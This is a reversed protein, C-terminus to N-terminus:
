QHNNCFDSFTYGYISNDQLFAQIQSLYSLLLKLIFGFVLKKLKLFWFYSSFSGFFPVKFIWFDYIAIKTNFWDGFLVTKEITHNGPPVFVTSDPSGRHMGPVFLKKSLTEVELVLDLMVNTHPWEKSASMQQLLQLDMILKLYQDM